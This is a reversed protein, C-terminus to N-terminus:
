FQQLLREIYDLEIPRRSRDGSRRRLEDLIERARRLEMENPIVVDETSVQGAGSRARGLPDRGPGSSRGLQSGESNQGFQQMLSDLMVEMGQQLQDIASSQPRIAGRPADRSLAERADRMHREANGLARPIDGTMEGFRRMVEGLRRRLQEQAQADGQNTSQPDEQGPGQGTRPPQRQDGQGQQSRQFSRDLLEQQQRVLDELDRMMQQAARADRGFQQFPMAQLNELINQLRSLMDKAQERAGGLAMERARDLMEQLDRREASQLDPPLELSSPDIGEEALRNLMQEMMAQLYRDIAKELENMLREIEADSADNALADELQRQLERLERLALALDGDEIHLATDWLLEQVETVATPKRDFRLRSEASRLALAVVVDYLYDEPRDAIAELVTAVAARAGPDLTLRKRLEVLARAVPHNFVREPLVLPYAFSEGIQGRADRAQLTAVVEIGAWPHATLDRFSSGEVERPAATGLSLPIELPKSEPKDSRRIQAQLDHLGYDDSARYEFQLAGRLAATPPRLFAVEPHADPLIDIAWHAVVKGDQEISLSSGDTLVLSTKFLSDTVREFSQREADLSLIPIGNGGEVQALLVSDVPITVLTVVADQPELLRPPQDTYSPPNLWVQLSTPPPGEAAAFRPSVAAALRERWDGGGAVFALLLLLGVVARLGFHDVRGWGARPLTLRLRRAQEILQRRHAEWLAAAAADRQGAALRDDLAALPRHALESDRELRRQAAVRGPLRLHSFARWLAFCCAGAFVALLALHLWGPLLSPLGFLAAALFLAAIGIPPWLAPWIREWLLVTRTLALRTAIGRPPVARQEPEKTRRQPL